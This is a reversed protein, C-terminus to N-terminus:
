ISLQWKGQMKTFPRLEIELIHSERSKKYRVIFLFCEALVFYLFNIGAHTPIFELTFGKFRVLQFSQATEQSAHLVNFLLPVKQRPQGFKDLAGVIGERNFHSSHRGQVFLRQKAFYVSHALIM